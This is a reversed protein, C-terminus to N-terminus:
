KVIKSVIKGKEIYAKAVAEAIPMILRRYGFIAALVLGLVIQYWQPMSAIIDFGRDIYPQASPIFAAPVPAIIIAAVIDDLLGWKNTSAYDMQIDAQQGNEIMAINAQLKRDEIIDAREREAAKIKQRENFFDFVGSFIYKISATIPNSM